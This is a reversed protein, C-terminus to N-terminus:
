RALWRAGATVSMAVAFPVLHISMRGPYNHTHAFLTSVCAGITVIAISTPLRNIKPLHLLVGVSLLLGAVVLVARPDPSPPENMWALARMGHWIRAWVRADFITSLRLGTDNNKLSTGYLVSFVGTYWWTRTAFLMVGAGLTALYAIAPRIVFPAMLVVLSVAFLLHNLRTYFMLVAFAGAVVALAPRARNSLLLLSAVFGWGAAAVESLGRGPFYRITGLWCTALTAVAAAVGWRFGAVREVLAFAVAAGLLLCVGDWYLEGVSSDGFVVHLAGAIWRYLPQYDFVKSGGELWYGHMYIRYAAAQYALWDDNSYATFHGVQALAPVAIMALWPIGVLML